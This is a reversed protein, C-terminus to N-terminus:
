PADPKSRQKKERKPVEVIVRRPKPTPRVAPLDAPEPIRYHQHLDAPELRGPGMAETASLEEGTLKRAIQRDTMVAVDPTLPEPRNERKTWESLVEDGSVLRVGTVGAYCSRQTRWGVGTATVVRGVANGSAGTQEPLKQLIGRIRHFRECTTILQRTSHVGSQWRAITFWGYGSGNFHECQIKLDVM